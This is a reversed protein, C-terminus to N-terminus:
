PLCYQSGGCVQISDPDEFDAITGNWESPKGCSTCRYM